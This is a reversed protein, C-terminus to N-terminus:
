MLRELNSLSGDCFSADVSIIDGLKGDEIQKRIYQYSPFFRSWIGEMLFLNKQKAYSVLKSAQKENLCMPKEVLVHKGHDMMLKAVGFHHPILNGIYAIEVNPDQALKLYTDYANPIDFRQAFEQARSLDQAAVAVVQHDDKNLTGLANVFDHAISGASAIGWKLAM